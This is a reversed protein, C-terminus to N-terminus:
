KNLHEDPIGQEKTGRLLISPDNNIKTSAKNLNDLTLQLLYLSESFEESSKDFDNDVKLVLQEVQDAVRAVNGILSKIDSAKLRASIDRLNSLIDDITDSQVRLNITKMTTELLRSSEDMRESIAKMPAISERIDRRNETVITDLKIVTRNAQETLITIKDILETFGKLNDPETFIQLNNLVKEAKQAIIEAKGTIEQTISSGAPIHSGPELSEAKNSGGSIEIAKLGTIGISTIDAHADAKIPTDPQLSLTLVVRNVDQPDIRIDKITGVKIGMYKVPSGVELGSVSVGEYSVYYIDEKEFFERATFFGIVSLLIALSVFLFIGLRIKQSRNRM